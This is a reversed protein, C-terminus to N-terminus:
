NWGVMEFNQQGFQEIFYEVVYKRLIMVDKIYWTQDCVTIEVVTHPVHFHMVMETDKIKRTLVNRTTVRVDVHSNSDTAYQTKMLEITERVLDLLDEVFIVSWGDIENM